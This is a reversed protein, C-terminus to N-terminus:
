KRSPLVSHDFTFSTAATESRATVTSLLLKSTKTLRSLDRGGATAEVERRM